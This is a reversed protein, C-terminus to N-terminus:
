ATTRYFSSIQKLSMRSVNPNESYVPTNKQWDPTAHNKGQNQILTAIKTLCKKLFSYFLM